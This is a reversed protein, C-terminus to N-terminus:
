IHQKVRVGKLRESFTRRKVIKGTLLFAFAFIRLYEGFYYTLANTWILGKYGLGISTPLANALGITSCRFSLRQGLEFMLSTQFPKGPVFAM